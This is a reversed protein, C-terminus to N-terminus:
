DFRKTTIVWSDQMLCAPSRILGEAPGRRDTRLRGENNQHTRSPSVDILNKRMHFMAPKAIGRPVAFSLGSALCELGSVPCLVQSQIVNQQWIRVTHIIRGYSYGRPIRIYVTKDFLM